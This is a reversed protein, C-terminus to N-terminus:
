GGHIQSQFCWREPTLMTEMPPPIQNGIRNAPLRDAPRPQVGQDAVAQQRQKFGVTPAFEGSDPIVPETAVQRRPQRTSQPLEAEEISARLRGTVAGRLTQEAPKQFTLRM